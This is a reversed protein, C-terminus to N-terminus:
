GGGLAAAGAAGLGGILGGAIQGGMQTRQQALGANIGQQGLSEQVRLRELEMAAQFQAQDLSLGSATYFQVLRDNMERQAMQQQAEQLDMGRGQGLVGALTQRAQMQETLALDASQGAANQAIEANRMGIQRAALGPNVGRQSQQLASAQALSRDTARQLQNQALSPGQGLSQALLASALDSQGTRFEQNVGPAQRGQAALMANQLSAKNANTTPDNFADANIDYGKARYRKGGVGNLISSPNRIVDGAGPLLSAGGTYPAAAVQAAATGLDSANNYWAM